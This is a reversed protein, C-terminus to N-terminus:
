SVNIANNGRAILRMLQSIFKQFKKCHCMSFLQRLVQLPEGLPEQSFTCFSSWSNGVCVFSLHYEDHCFHLDCLDGKTESTRQRNRCNLLWAKAASVAWSVRLVKMSYILSLSRWWLSLSGAQPLTSFLFLDWLILLQLHIAWERM